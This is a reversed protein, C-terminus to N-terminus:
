FTRKPCQAQGRRLRLMQVIPSSASSLANTWAYDISRTTLWPALDMAFAAFITVKRAVPVRPLQSVADRSLLISAFPLATLRPQQAEPTGSKKQSEKSLSPSPRARERQSTLATDPSARRAERPPQLNLIARTVVLRTLM